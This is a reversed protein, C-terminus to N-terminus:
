SEKRPANKLADPKFERPYLEMAKKAIANAMHIDMQDDDVAMVAQSISVALVMQDFAAEVRGERRLAMSAEVRTYCELLEYFHVYPDHQHIAAYRAWEFAADLCTDAAGPLRQEFLRDCAAEHRVAPLVDPSIAALMFSAILAIM